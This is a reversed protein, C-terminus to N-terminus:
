ARALRRLMLKIMALYVLAKASNALNEFDRALRVGREVSLGLEIGTANTGYASGSPETSSAPL